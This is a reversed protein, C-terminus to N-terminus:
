CAKRAALDRADDQVLAYAQDPPVGSEIQQRVTDSIKAVKARDAPTGDECEPVSEILTAVARKCVTDIPNAVYAPLAETEVLAVYQSMRRPVAFHDGCSTAGTPTEAVAQQTSGVENQQVSQESTGCAAGAVPVVALALLALARRM